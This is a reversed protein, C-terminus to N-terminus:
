RRRRPRARVFAENHQEPTWAPAPPHGGGAGIATPLEADDLPRPLQIKPVHSKRSKKM